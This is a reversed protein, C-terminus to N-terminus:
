LRSQINIHKLQHKFQDHLRQRRRTPSAETQRRRRLRPQNKRLKPLQRKVQNELQNKSKKKRTWFKSNNKRTSMKNRSKKTSTNKRNMKSMSTNKRNMKRMSINKRNMKM